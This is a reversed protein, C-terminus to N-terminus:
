FFIIDKIKMIEFIFFNSSYHISIKFLWDVFLNVLFKPSVLINKNKCNKDELIRPKKYSLKESCFIIAFIIFHNEFFLISSYSFNMGAITLIIIIYMYIVIYFNYATQMNSLTCIAPHFKCWHAMVFCQFKMKMKWLCKSSLVSFLLKLLSHTTLRGPNSGICFNKCKQSQCHFVLVHNEMRNSM